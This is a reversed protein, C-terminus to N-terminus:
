GRIEIVRIFEKSDFPTVSRAYGFAAEEISYRTGGTNSSCPSSTKAFSQSQVQEDIGQARWHSPARLISYRRDYGSLRGDWQVGPTSDEAAVLALQGPDITVLSLEANGVADGSCDSRRPHNGVNKGTPRPIANGAM